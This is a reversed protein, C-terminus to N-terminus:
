HGSLDNVLKLNHFGAWTYGAATGLNVGTWTWDAGTGKWGHFTQTEEIVASVGCLGAKVGIVRGWLPRGQSDALLGNGESAGASTARRTSLTDFVLSAACGAVLTARRVWVRKPTRLHEAARVTPSFLALVLGICLLKM